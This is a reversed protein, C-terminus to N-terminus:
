CKRPAGVPNPNQVGYTFIGNNFKAFHDVLKKSLTIM